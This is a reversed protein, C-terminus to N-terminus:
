DSIHDRNQDKEKMLRKLNQLHRELEELCTYIAHETEDTRGALYDLPVGYFDAMRSAVSLTPVSEAHEYKQYARFSVGIEKAASAQTVHKSKRLSIIRESFVSM